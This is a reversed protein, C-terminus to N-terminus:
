PQAGSLAAKKKAAPKAAEPTPRDRLVDRLKIKLADVMEFTPDTRRKWVTILAPMSDMGALDDVEVTDDGVLERVLSRFSRMEEFTLDDADVIEGDLMLVQEPANAQASDTPHDAM